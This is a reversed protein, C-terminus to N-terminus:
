AHYRNWQRQIAKNLNDNLQRIAEQGKAEKAVQIFPYTKSLPVEGRNYGKKTKRLGKYGARTEPIFWKLAGKPKSWVKGVVDDQNKDYDAYMVIDKIFPHGKIFGKAVTPLSTKLVTKAHNMILRMSMRMANREARRIEKGNLDALKGLLERSGILEIKDAM